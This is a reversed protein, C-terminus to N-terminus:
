QLYKVLSIIAQLINPIQVMGVYPLKKEDSEIIIVGYSYRNLSKDFSGDCFAVLFGQQIDQEVTERWIDRDSLFAEAEEKSPFSKYIAGSFGKISENCETWNDFVGVKKGAKVAYFKM